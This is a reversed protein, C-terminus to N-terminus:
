EFESYATYYGTKLKDMIREPQFVLGLHAKKYEDKLEGVDLHKSNIKWIWWDNQIDPKTYDEKDKFIIHETHGIDRINGVKEWLGKKIGNKTVCHAYFDVEGNVIESLDPNAEIPYIEKFARIVDSNLQTLDSIIYQLYKKHNEDIKACFVDGIVTNKERKQM